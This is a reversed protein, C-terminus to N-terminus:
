PGPPTRVWLGPTILTAATRTLSVATGKFDLNGGGAGLASEDYDDGLEIPTMANWCATEMDGDNEPAGTQIKINAWNLNERGNLESVGADIARDKANSELDIYRPVAVAALIGLIILVAIIEVLTFGEQNKLLRKNRTKNM